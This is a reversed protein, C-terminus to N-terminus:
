NDRGNTACKLLKRSTSGPQKLLIIERRLDKISNFILYNYNGEVNNLSRLISHKTFSKNYAEQKINNTTQLKINIIQKQQIYYYKTKNQRIKSFLPLHYPLEAM